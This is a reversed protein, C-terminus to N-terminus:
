RQVAGNIRDVRQATKLDLEWWPNESLETHTTSKHDYDGDTKGDIALRAPGDYATSSQTATKGQALNTGGPLQASVLRNLSDYAYTM